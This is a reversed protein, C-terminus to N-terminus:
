MCKTQQVTQTLYGEQPIQVVYKWVGQYNRAFTPTVYEELSPCPTPPLGEVDNELSSQQSSSQDPPKSKKRFNYVNALLKIPSSDSTMLDLVTVLPSSSSSSSGTAGTLASLVQTLPSRNVIPPSATTTSGGSDPNIANIIDAAYTLMNLLNNPSTSSTGSSTSSSASTSPSTHVKDSIAPTRSTLMQLITQLVATSVRSTSLASFLNCLRRFLHVETDDNVKCNWRSPPRGIM